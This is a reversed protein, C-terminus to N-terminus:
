GASPARRRKPLPASQVEEIVQELPTMAGDELLERAREKGLRQAATERPDPLHLVTVPAVMV